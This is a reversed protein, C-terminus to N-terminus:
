GEDSNSSTKSEEVQETFPPDGTPDGKCVGQVCVQGKPCPPGGGCWLKETRIM